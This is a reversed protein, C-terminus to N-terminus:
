AKFQLLSLFFGDNHESPCLAFQDIEAWGQTENLTNEVVQQNESTLVSCTMYAVLGGPKTLAMSKHLVEAQLANYKLLKDPNFRWKEDPTRRWTGSGSCPADCLVIDYPTQATLAATEKITIEVGARIARPQIDSMRALSIDHATVYCHHASAVALAKGGGGACYDLVQAGNEVPIRAIAAQSAADQIEVWGDQYALSQKVRRPNETVKLCGQVFPHAETTIGDAALSAVADAISGKRPNHRLFVPARSQLTKATPIADESLNACWDGWIWEPIDYKEWDTLPKQLPEKEAVSLPAPAHGQGDFLAVVDWGSSVALARMLDRGTRAGATASLSTKRRLVDYVHDRVAARDKSGAYRSARAWRTLAQEAAAGSLIEDLVAIAAAVRAGPTM